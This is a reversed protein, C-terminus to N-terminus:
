ARDEASRRARPKVHDFGCALGEYTIDALYPPTAVNVRVALAYYTSVIWLITEKFDRHREYVTRASIEFGRARMGDSITQTLSGENFADAYILPKTEQARYMVEVCGGCLLGVWSALPGRFVRFRTSYKNMSSFFRQVKRPDELDDLSIFPFSGKLDPLCNVSMAKFEQELLLKITTPTLGKIKDVLGSSEYPSLRMLRYINDRQMDLVCLLALRQLFETRYRAELAIGPHKASRLVGMKALWTFCDIPSMLFEFSFMREVLRYRVMVPASEYGKLLTNAIEIVVEKDCDYLVHLAALVAGEFFDLNFQRVREHVEDTFPRPIESLHPFAQEVLQLDESLAAEMMCLVGHRVVQRQVGHIRRNTLERDLDERLDMLWCLEETFLCFVLAQNFFLKDILDLGAVQASSVRAM